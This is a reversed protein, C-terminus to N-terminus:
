KKGDLFGGLKDGIGGPLKALLEKPDVGFRSLLDAHQEHDVTAPLQQDARAADDPRGQDKLFNVVTQKDIQM